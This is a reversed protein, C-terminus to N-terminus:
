SKFSPIIQDISNESTERYKNVVDRKKVNYLIPVTILLVIIILASSYFMLRTSVHNRYSLEQAM